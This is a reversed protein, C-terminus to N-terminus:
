ENFIAALRGIEGYDTFDLNHPVISVHGDHIIHHDALRDEAPSDDVFDGVMMYLAEGEERSPNSTQGLDEPRIGMRTFFSVDWPQFEREWHGLGQHGVRVGKICSAPINPFNVNYFVGFKDSLNDMLRTFIDPFLVEVASFDADPKMSCLSVGIGPIGNIAAEEAAGITGSYNAGTATNSGHNIGCVVVDPRCDHLINDIGFKVCSSPTADVYYWDEGDERELAKVAIAKCGMSVALSMGSQHVKPAVVTVKGFDGMIRVLTHIGKARYGDDNTVLINLDKRM